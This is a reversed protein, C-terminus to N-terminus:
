NVKNSKIDTSFLKTGTRKSIEDLFYTLMFFWAFKGSLVIKLWLFYDEVYRKTPEFRCIIDRYLMVSRTPLCKSILLSYKGVCCAKQQETIELKLEDPKIWCSLHAV